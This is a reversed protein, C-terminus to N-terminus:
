TKAEGAERNNDDQLHPIFYLIYLIYTAQFPPYLESQGVVWLPSAYNRRVIWLSMIVVWCIFFIGFPAFNGDAM